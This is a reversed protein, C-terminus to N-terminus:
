VVANDESETSCNDSTSFADLEEGLICTTCPIPRAVLEGGATRTLHHQKQIAKVVVGKEEDLQPRDFPLTEVIEIFNFKASSEALKPRTLDIIEQISQAIKLWKWGYGAIGAM